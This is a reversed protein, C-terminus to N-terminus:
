KINLRSLLMMMNPAKPEFHLREDPKVRVFGTQTFVVLVGCCNEGGGLELTRLDTVSGSRQGGQPLRPNELM